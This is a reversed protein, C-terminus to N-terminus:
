SRADALLRELRDARRGILLDLTKARQSWLYLGGELAYGMGGWVQHAALTAELYTNRLWDEAIVVERTAPRQESVTWLARYAAIRGAELRMAINSLHHQVAQFSGIAVGFQRRQSAYAVTRDLVAEIGGLIEMCRLARVCDAVGRDDVDLGALGAPQGLLADDPVVVGDLAVEHLADEGFTLYSDVFVGDSGRPVALLGLRAGTRTTGVQALVLLLDSREANPVFAKTGSISWGSAVRTATTRTLELNELVDRESLATSAVLGGECLSPLWQEKQAPTGLRDLYLGAAITSSFTSPVLARGAERFALGVDFVSGGAGGWAPDFPIGLWGADAIARWVQESHGEGHPTSAARVVEVSCVRELMRRAQAVFAKQGDDLTLDM